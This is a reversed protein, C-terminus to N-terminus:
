LTRARVNGIEVFTEGRTVQGRVQLAEGLIGPPARKM